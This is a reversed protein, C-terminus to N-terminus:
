IFFDKEWTQLSIMFLEGRGEPILHLTLTWDYISYAGVEGKGLWLDWKGYIFVLSSLSNRLSVFLCSLFPLWQGTWETKWAGLSYREFVHSHWSGQCQWSSCSPFIRLIWVWSSVAPPAALRLWRLPSVSSGSIFSFLLNSPIAPVQPPLIVFHHPGLSVALLVVLILSHFDPNFISPLQPAENM